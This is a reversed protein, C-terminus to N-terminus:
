INIKLSKGLLVTNTASQMSARPLLFIIDTRIQIESKQYICVVWRSLVMTIMIQILLQQNKYEQSRVQQPGHHDPQELHSHPHLRVAHALRLYAGGPLAYNINIIIIIFLLLWHHYCIMMVRSLITSISLSSSLPLWYHYYILVM